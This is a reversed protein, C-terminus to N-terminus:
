PKASRELVAVGRAPLTLPSTQPSGTLVDRLGPVVPISLPQKGYNILIFVERGPGARRSVEVNEPVPPFPARIRAQDVLRDVATRMLSADLLAGIYTISGKGVPRTLVAPQGDLWGNSAGYRLSVQANAASSSLLEAWVAANGKGWEGTVPVPDLLAYFQEVRGGLAPVLPGPQRRTQLSNYADKMGSRPGLVLHGGQEVYDLLHKALEDDIVNLSPAMVLKYQTLPAHASVIDVSQTARQLPEWYDLLVQLQDYRQSHPQFDIAWRSPYDHLIAAQSVPATGALAKAAANFERGIQRVEDYLPVPEGDPGVLTGHYQEQGNLASRWQWFAYCDAGHAVAQWAMERVEGRDLSNSVPAWNVFGPQAEMVWFNERKWGRALDHTAANRAPNLHGSGVYDDWTIFDLDSAVLYRDFRDAWGLGGYNTTVFQSQTHARIADIQNRVFERWMDSVFRRYDLLLGPNGRSSEMPIQDWATYTQSWYATTWRANLEDLTKYKTKLWAHFRARAEPDYSDETFENGIQWGIVNPDSGFREAMKSVILRCLERYKSSVYSFQRRSGHEAQRGNQDVRLTEPYKETLWAPPADTPTGLVTVIHHAAAKAIARDLWDFDFAGERPELTSWAFEGVRVMRIGAAEMLALDRDWASEPWQEPYWAVGLFPASPTRPAPPAALLTCAALAAATLSGLIRM